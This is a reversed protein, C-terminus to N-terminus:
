ILSLPFRKKKKGEEGKTAPLATAQAGGKRVPAASGPFQGYSLNLLVLAGKQMGETDSISSNGKGRGRKEAPFVDDGAM